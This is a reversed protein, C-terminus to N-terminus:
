ILKIKGEVFEIDWETKSLLSKKMINEFKSIIDEKGFLRVNESDEIGLKYANIIDEITFLKDKVLEQHAKFGQHYYSIAVDYEDETTIFGANCFAAVSAMNEVSYGYIAEKVESLPLPKIKDYHKIVEGSEGEYFEVAKTSFIVKLRGKIKGEKESNATLITFFPDNILSEIIFCDSEKIQSDNVVIYHEESLKILKNM